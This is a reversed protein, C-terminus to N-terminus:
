TFIAPIRGVSHSGPRHDRESLAKKISAEGEGGEKREGKGIM